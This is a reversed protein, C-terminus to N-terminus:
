GEMMFVLRAFGSDQVVANGDLNDTAVFPNDGKKPWRFGANLIDQFNRKKAL